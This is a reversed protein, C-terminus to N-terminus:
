RIPFFLKICFSIETQTWEVRGGNREALMKITPLGIGKSEATHDSVVHNVVTVLVESGIRQVSFDIPKLPSAYKKLNSFLNDFIRRLDFPSVYLQYDGDIEPPQATFGADQLDCCTEVILQSLLLSGSVTEFGPEVEREGRVQFHQFMEDSLTKVQQAKELAQDLYRLEERRDRFKNYRLIELYGTLKTLPTRLDHSLSTILRSNALVAENELAMQELVSCRMAEISQRLEALEDAGISEIRYSLDGGSLIEMEQSLHTIRKIVHFTYPIMVIFFCIAACLVSIVTAINEYHNSSTHAFAYVVGDSCAVPIGQTRETRSIQKLVQSDQADILYLYSAKYENEWYVDRIAEAVSLGNEKVYDQFDAVAARENERWYPEFDDSNIVLWFVGESLLLYVAFALVLAAAAVTTFKLGLKSSFISSGM